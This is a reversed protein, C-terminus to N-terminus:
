KGAGVSMEKRNQKVCLKNGGSPKQKATIRAQFERRSFFTSKSVVLYKVYLLNGPVFYSILILSTPSIKTITTSYVYVHILLKLM